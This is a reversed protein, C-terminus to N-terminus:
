LMEVTDRPLLLRHTTLGADEADEFEREVEHGSHGRTGRLQTGTTLRPIYARPLRRAALLCELAEGALTTRHCEREACADLMEQFL